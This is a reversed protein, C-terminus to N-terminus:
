SRNRQVKAWVFWGGGRAHSYDVNLIELSEGVKAVGQIPASSRAANDSDKRLYVDDTVTLRNGSTIPLTVNSITKPTGNAWASKGEDVKGLYIWGVDSVSAPAIEAVVQQQTALSRKIVKDAAALENRSSEAATGIAKVESKVKPDNVKGELENLREILQDYDTNAKEISQGVSKTQEAATKVQAQWEMGGISGKTFGAAQLRSNITDPAFLLLLFLLFLVSDRLAAVVDKLVASFVEIPTKGDAM